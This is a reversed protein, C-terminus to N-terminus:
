PMACPTYFAYAWFIRCLLIEKSDISPFSNGDEDMQSDESYDMESNESTDNDDSSDSSSASM